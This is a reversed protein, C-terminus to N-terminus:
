RFGDCSYTISCQLSPSRDAVGISVTPSRKSVGNSVAASAASSKFACASDDHRIERLLVAVDKMSPRDDPRHSACLLAIGLAQLMEQVQTDPRGRLRPDLVELPDRKSRLRDRVWGAVTQGEGFSGDPPRGGSPPGARQTIIELLLVGFSFVDCKKTIRMMCGYEPAIYGYSGAFPPPVAGAGVGTADGAVCAIGFDALCAEYTDGLLVNDAKVDRHIIAPVCDHHLYALGEAVGIAIGLRVEWEMVATGGGNLACGHLFEGLTGNPHFDYFLLRTRQNAAWGLLRVINRHRVRALAAIESGASAAAAADNCTRFKKVAILTGAPPIKVSYVVGSRGKGVSNAPKLSRTIDAVIIDLKQYLTVEWPPALEGDKEEDVTTTIGSVRRRSLFILIATGLLVVTASLLAATAIHAARRSTSHKSNATDAICGALCLDPNGALKATPLKSFFSSNPVRGSFNNFSIDLTVLNQLVSLPHLDGYFRNHSLDLIALRNLEAFDYPIEGSLSNWSLNLAIELAPIKGLSAPIEGSLANRSLDLWQLRSCSGIETPIHGTFRNGALILKTMSALLGLDPPLEGSILNNSIDLFQLLALGEFLLYPLTGAIANDHLDLFTLNRCGSIEVPIPGSLRNSGLDLFSLKRLAGIEAPINGTIRNGNARFRILSKCKGIEAAIEGSLDNHLLLLKGLMPLSFIEKPIPGTLANQSLDVAELNWGALEQPIGGELRNQWVYLTRLNYLRSIEPPIAGTIQNNDLELETLNRCNSITPPISGSIQNVSLKLEQLSTLNSFAHPIGGTLRNISLDVVELELCLGLEPPIMGVLNNQWLLLNRLKKLRGLALPVSGTISNEYLYINQLEGCQGLEPPIPGSLLATYVALTHLRQLFGLGAPLSGTIGTEALGIMTLSSCNGIEEPLAGILNKNGGARFVEMKGLLGISAPITGALQNDYLILLRLYTLNGIADPISGELGNSNLILEQIKSGPRFLSVPIEGFLANESLDLHSLQSLEGLEPPIPGTLNTGSLVLTTLTPAVAALNGPVRGCLDVYQLNIGVVRGDIGCSVGFWGCPNEDLENWNSLASAASTGNLTIKWAILAEAEANIAEAARSSLVLLLLSSCLLLRVCFPFLLPRSKPPLAAGDVARSPLM